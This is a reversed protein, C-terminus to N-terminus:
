ERGLQERLVDISAPLSIYLRALDTCYFGSARGLGDLPLAAGFISGQASRRTKAASPHLPLIRVLPLEATM